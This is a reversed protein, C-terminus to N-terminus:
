PIGDAVALRRGLDLAGRGSLDVGIDGRFVVEGVVPVVLALQHAAVLGVGQGGVDGALLAGIFIHAEHHSHGFVAQGGLRDAAGAGDGHPHLVQDGGVRSHAAAVLEEVQAVPVALGGLGHLLLDILGDVAGRVAM